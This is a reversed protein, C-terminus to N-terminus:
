SCVPSGPNAECYDTIEDAWASLAACTVLAGIGLYRKM